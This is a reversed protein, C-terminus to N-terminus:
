RIYGNERYWEMTEKLGTKLDYKPRFGLEKM